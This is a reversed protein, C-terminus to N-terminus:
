ARRPPPTPPAPLPRDLFSQRPPHVVNSAPRTLLIVTPDFCLDLKGGSKLQSQERESQRGQDVALCIRCPSSGDFTKVVAETFGCESSYSVLMNVWAVSQLVTWHLGLSLALMLAIVHRATRNM